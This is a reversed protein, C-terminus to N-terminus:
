ELTRLWRSRNLFIPKRLITWIHKRGTTSLLWFLQFPRCLLRSCRQIYSLNKGDIAKNGLSFGCCLCRSTAREQPEPNKPDADTFYSKAQPALNGMEM